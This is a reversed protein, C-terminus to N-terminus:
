FNGKQNKTEQEIKKRYDGFTCFMIQRKKIKSATPNLLINLNKIASNGKFYLYIIKFLCIKFKKIYYKRM